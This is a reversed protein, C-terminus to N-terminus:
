TIAASPILSPRQLPSSVTLTHFFFDVVSRGQARCSQIV